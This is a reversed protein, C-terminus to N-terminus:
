KTGNRPLSPDLERARALFERVVALFAAKMRPDTAADAKQRYEEAKRLIQALEKQEHDKQEDRM